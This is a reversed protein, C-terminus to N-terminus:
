RPLLLLLARYTVYGLAMSLLLFLMPLGIVFLLNPPNETTLLM